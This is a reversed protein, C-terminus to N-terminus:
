ENEREKGKRYFAQTHECVSESDIRLMIDDEMHISRPRTRQLSSPGDLLRSARFSIHRQDTGDSFRQEHIEEM